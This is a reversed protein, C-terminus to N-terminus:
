VVVELMAHCKSFTGVYFYSFSFLVQMFTVLRMACQVFERM